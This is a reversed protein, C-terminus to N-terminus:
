DTLAWKHEIHEVRIIFCQNYARLTHFISRLEYRMICLAYNMIPSRM